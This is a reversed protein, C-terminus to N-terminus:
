HILTLKLSFLLLAIRIRKKFANRAPVLYLIKVHALSRQLLHERDNIPYIM